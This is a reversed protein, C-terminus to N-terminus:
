LMLMLPEVFRRPKYGRNSGPQPLYEEVRDEMRFVRPVEVYLALGNRPTIKEDCIELKIPLKDKTTM